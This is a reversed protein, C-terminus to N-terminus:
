EYENGKVFFMYQQKKGGVLLEDNKMSSIYQRIQRRVAKVAFIHMKSSVENYLEEKVNTETFSIKFMRTKYGETVVNEEYGVTIDM